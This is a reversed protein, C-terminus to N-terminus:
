CKGCLLYSHGFKLVLGGENEKKGEWEGWGWWGREKFHCKSIEKTKNSKKVNMAEIFKFLKLFPLSSLIIYKIKTLLCTSFVLGLKGIRIFILTKNTTASIIYM